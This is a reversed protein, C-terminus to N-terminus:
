LSIVGEVKSVKKYKEIVADPSKMKVKILVSTYTGKSSNRKTIEANTNAFIAEITAIKSENSPVIFKYLYLAPWQTDNKLSKKLKKYFAATDKESRM